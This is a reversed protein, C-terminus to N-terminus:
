YECYLVMFRNNTILYTSDTIPVLSVRAITNTLLVSEPLFGKLMSSDAMNGPSESISTTTFYLDNNYQKVTYFAAIRVVYRDNEQNVLNGDVSIQGIDGTIKLTLEAKLSFKSNSVVTRGHCDLHTKQYNQYYFYSNALVLFVFVVVLVPLWYYKRM